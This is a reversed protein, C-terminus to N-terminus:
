VKLTVVKKIGGGKVKIWEGLKGTGEESRARFNNLRVERGWEM